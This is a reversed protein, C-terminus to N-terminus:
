IVIANNLFSREIMLKLEICYLYIKVEYLEPRMAALYFSM